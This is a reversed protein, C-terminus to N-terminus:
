DTKKQPIMASRQRGSGHSFPAFSETRHISAAASALSPTGQRNLPSTVHLLWPMLRASVEMMNCVEFRWELAPWPAALSSVLWTRASTRCMTYRPKLKKCSENRLEQPKKNQPRMTTNTMTSTTAMVPGM